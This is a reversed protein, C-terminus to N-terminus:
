HYRFVEHERAERKIRAGSQDQPNVIGTLDIRAV